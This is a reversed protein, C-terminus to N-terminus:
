SQDQSSFSEKTKVDKFYVAVRKQNTLANQYHQLNIPFSTKQNQVKYKQFIDKKKNM